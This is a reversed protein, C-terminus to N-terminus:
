SDFTTLKLHARKEFGSCLSSKITDLDATLRGILRSLEGICIEQFIFGLKFDLSSYSWKDNGIGNVEVRVNSVKYDVSLEMAALFTTELPFSYGISGTGNIGIGFQHFFNQEGLGNMFRNKTMVTGLGANVKIFFNTKSMPYYKGGFNFSMYNFYYAEQYGDSPTSGTLCMNLEAGWMLKDVNSIPNYFGLGLNWGLLGSYSGVTNREGDNNEFYSLGENRIEQSALLEGGGMLFPISIGISIFTQSQRHPKSSEQGFSNSTGLQLILIITGISFLKMQSHKYLYLAFIIASSRFDM